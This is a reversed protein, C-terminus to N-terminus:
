LVNCTLWRKISAAKFWFHRKSVWQKAPQNKWRGACIDARTSLCIGTTTPDPEDLFSAIADGLTVLTPEKLRVFTLIMITAKIANAAIVILMIGLSFSLRCEEEVTEIMCYSILHKDVTWTDVSATAISLTCVPSPSYGYPNSDFDPGCLWAYPIENYSDWSGGGLANNVNDTDKTVLLVNRVRSVFNGAYEAMCSAADYKVLSGSVAEKHLTDLVGTSM